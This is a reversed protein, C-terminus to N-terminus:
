PEPFTAKREAFAAAHSQAEGPTCPEFRPHRKGDPTEVELRHIPLFGGLTWNCGGQYDAPLPHPPGGAGTWRGICSFALFREVGAFDDGAGAAILDRASQITGCAPCRFALDEEAVEQAKLLERFERLTIRKM